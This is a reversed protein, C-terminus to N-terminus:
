AEERRLSKPSPQNTEMEEDSSSPNTTEEDAESNNATEQDRKDEDSHDDANDEDSIELNLTLIMIQKMMTVQNMKVSLENEQVEMQILDGEEEFAIVQENHVQDDM